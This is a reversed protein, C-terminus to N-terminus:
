DEDFINRATLSQGHFAAVCGRYVRASESDLAASELAATALELGRRLALRYSVVIEPQLEPGNGELRSLEIFAALFLPDYQLRYAAGEAIRVLHPVAAYSGTYSDGQHCLASWLDFWTSGQVHGGRTDTEARKLLAPIDEASGYAHTLTSWAVNPVEVM